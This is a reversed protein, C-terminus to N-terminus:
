PKTCSSTDQACATGGGPPVVKLRAALECTATTKGHGLYLTTTTADCAGDTCTVSCSLAADPCYIETGLCAGPGECLV